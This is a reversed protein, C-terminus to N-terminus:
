IALLENGLIQISPQNLGQFPVDFNVDYTPPFQNSMGIVPTLTLGGSTITFNFTLKHVDSRIRRYATSVNIPNSGVAKTELLEQGDLGWVTVFRTNGANPAITLYVFRRALPRVWVTWRYPINTQLTFRPTDRFTVHIGNTTDESLVGDTSISAGIFSGWQPVPLFLSNPSPNIAESSLLIRRVATKM